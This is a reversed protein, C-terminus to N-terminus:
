DRCTDDDLKTEIKSVHDLKCTRSKAVVIPVKRCMNADCSIYLISRHKSLISDGKALVVRWPFKAGWDLM